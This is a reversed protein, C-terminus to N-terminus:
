QLLRMVNQQVANAQSMAYSGSQALINFKSFNASEAAFDVDRIASEAAKVNVQTVSINNITSTVQNQVSGLDSRITDLNTIAAGLTDIAKMADELTLVSIDALSTLEADGVNVAGGNTANTAITSGLKITSGSELVLDKIITHDGSLTGNSTLKTGATLTGITDFTMDQTLVTGAALVSDDKLVSQAKLLMDAATTEDAATVLSGGVTSGSALESNGTAREELISGSKLETEKTTLIEKNAEGGFVQVSDGLSSGTKLTSGAIISSGALAAMDTSVTMNTKVDIIDSSGGGGAATAFTTGALLISGAAISQGGVNEGSTFNTHVYLDDALTVLTDAAFTAGGPLSTDGTKLIGATTVLDPGTYSGSDTNLSITSGSKLVSGAIFSITNGAGSAQTVAADLIRDVTTASGAAFATAAVTSDNDYQIGVTFDAGLISGTNITSGTAIDAASGKKITMDASLTVDSTLNLDTTLVDGKSYVGIDQTLVTGAGLTTGSKLTSGATVVMDSSLTTAAQPTSAMGVVFSGGVTTGTELTSGFNVTSGAALLTNTTAGSTISSLLKTDGGVVTGVGLTSGAAIKSGTALTSDLGVTMNAGVAVNSTSSLAAIGESQIDVAFAGTQVVEIKGITSMQDASSGLIGALDGEVKIARGDNSTLTLKGDDSLSASVGTEVTKSNIANLLTKDNDNEEVAVDGITVGNIKFDDGTSGADVASASTSSVIAKATIGTDGSFRNIESALAGMSNEFTNDFAVNITKLEVEDGTLASTLTLAVDGGQSNALTLDSRTTHGINNTQTSAISVKVSENANAGMQFEKNTYSGSLLKQGNFSTTSAIMNLEEMLKDIDKQIALRTTSNQGDSAAQVAKTKITDLINSYESLAGDATQILGIADNGNNIAQGLSSAQTRLSNAIALGAADDAAKNIRLGSSLKNLSNDLNRNNQLSNSHAQMAAINTNIKFGM